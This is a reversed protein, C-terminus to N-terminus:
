LDVRLPFHEAKWPQSCLTTTQLSCKLSLAKRLSPIQISGIMWDFALYGLIKEGSGVCLFWARHPSRGLIGSGDAFSSPGPRLWTFQSRSVRTGATPALGVAAMYTSGITKIKELDKYFDKDM